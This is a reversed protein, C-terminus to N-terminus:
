INVVADIYPPKSLLRSKNWGYKDLNDSFQKLDM